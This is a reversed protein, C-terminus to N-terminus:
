TEAFEVDDSQLGFFEAHEGFAGLEAAGGGGIRQEVPQRGRAELGAEVPSAQKGRHAIGRERERRRAGDDLVGDRAGEGIALQERARADEAAAEFGEARWAVCDPQKQRARVRHRHRQDPQERAAADRRHDIV